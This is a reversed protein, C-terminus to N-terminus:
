VIKKVDLFEYASKVLHYLELDNEIIADLWRIARLNQAVAQVRPSEEISLIESPDIGLLEAIADFFERSKNRTGIIQFQSLIQLSKTASNREAPEDPTTSTLQRAVPNSLISLIKPDAKGLVRRLEQEDLERCKGILDVVPAFLLADREGLLRNVGAGLHKFIILREALEDYPDQMLMATKHNQDTYYEYNRYLLRGSSYLSGFVNFSLIQRATEASYKDIAPYWFRFKTKMAMDLQRLPFLSTELRFFNQSIIPHTPPRRYVLIDTEVDRIELDTISSLDNIIKDDIVFGVNGTEHRGSNFVHENFDNPEITRVLVGNAFINLSAQASFADPVCYAKICSGTDEWVMFLM